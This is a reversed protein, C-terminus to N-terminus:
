FHKSKEGDCFPVRQAATGSREVFGLVSFYFTASEVFLKNHM